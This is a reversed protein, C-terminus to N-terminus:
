GRGNGRPRLRAATPHQEYFALIQLETALDVRRVSVHPPAGVVVPAFNLISGVGAEVLRNTVEQAAHAPTAIIGIAVGREAVIRPLDALPEIAMDGV